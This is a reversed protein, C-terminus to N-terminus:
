FVKAVLLRYLYRLDGLLRGGYLDGITPGGPAHIVIDAESVARIFERGQKTFSLRGFTLVNFLMDLDALKSWLSPYFPLREIDDYPFWDVRKALLMIWMREVPLEARLSDIM